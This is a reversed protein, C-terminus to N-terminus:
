SLPAPAERRARELLTRVTASAQAGRAMWYDARGVDVRVAPPNSRPDYMGLNEVIRATPVERSGSVVVRYFPKSRTGMRRLRITVV